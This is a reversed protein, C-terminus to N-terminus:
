TPLSGLRSASSQSPICTHSILISSRAGVRPTLSEFHHLSAAPLAASWVVSARAVPRKPHEVVAHFRARAFAHPPLTPPRHLSRRRPVGIQLPDHASHPPALHPIQRTPTQLQAGGLPHRSLVRARHRSPYPM